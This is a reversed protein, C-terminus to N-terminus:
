FKLYFKMIDNGLIKNVFVMFQNGLYKLMDLFLNIRIYNLKVIQDFKVGLKRFEQFVRLVWSVCDFFDFWM